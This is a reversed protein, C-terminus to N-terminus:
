GPLFELIERAVAHPQEIFLMRPAGPIAKLRAGSIAEAIRAVAAPTSSKDLEGAICLAPVRLSPLSPSRGHGRLDMRLVRHRPAPLAALPALFTLDIGVPHPLLARTGEGEVIHNLIM